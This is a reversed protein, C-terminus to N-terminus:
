KKEEKLERELEHVFRTQEDIKVSVEERVHNLLGTANILLSYKHQPRGLEGCKKLISEKLWGYEKFDKVVLSVEPQRLDSARELDRATIPWKINKNMMVALVASQTRSYGLTILVDKLKNEM